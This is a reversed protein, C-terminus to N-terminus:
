EQMQRKAQKEKKSHSSSNSKKSHEQDQKKKSSRELSFVRSFIGELESAESILSDHGGTGEEVFSYSCAAALLLLLVPRM